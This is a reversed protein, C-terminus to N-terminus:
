ASSVLIHFDVTLKAVIKGANEVQAAVDLVVTGHHVDLEVHDPPRVRAV